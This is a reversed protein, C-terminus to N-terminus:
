SSLRGAKEATRKMVNELERYKEDFKEKKGLEIAIKRLLLYSCFRSFSRAKKELEENWNKKIEEVLIEKVNIEFVSHVLSELAPEISVTTWKRKIKIRLRSIYGDTKLDM